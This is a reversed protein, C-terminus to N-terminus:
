PLTCIVDKPYSRKRLYRIASTVFKSPGAVVAMVGPKFSSISERVESNEDLNDFDQVLCCSVELKSNYKYFEKELEEYAVDFQESRKNLWVINVNRVSSSGNPLVSKVQDLIPVVGDDSIFYLMDTVPLYQGKYQLTKPGPKIAVEDGTVLDDDLVDAFGARTIGVTDKMEETSRNYPLIISFSGQQFRSSSLYFDGKVMNQSSDLCCLSIQQGLELPLTNEQKPLDFTYEVYEVPGEETSSSSSSWKKKGGEMSGTGGGTSGSSKAMILRKSTLTCVGWGTSSSDADFKMPVGKSSSKNVGSIQDQGALASVLRQFKGRFLKFWHTARVNTSSLVVSRQLLVITVLAALTALFEKSFLVSVLFSEIRQLGTWLGKVSQSQFPPRPPTSISVSELLPRDLSVALNHALLRQRDPSLPSKSMKLLTSRTNEAHYNPTFATTTLPLFILTLTLTLTRMTFQYPNHTYTYSTGIEEIRM